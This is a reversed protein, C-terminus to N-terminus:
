KQAAPKVAPKRGTAKEPTAPMAANEEPAADEAAPEAEENEGAVDASGQAILHAAEEDPLDITAGRAPWEQGNRTGSIQVKMRVEM